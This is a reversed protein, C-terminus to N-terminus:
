PCAPAGDITPRKPDKKQEEIYDLVHAAAAEPTFGLEEAIVKYPASAGFPILGGSLALETCITGTGHERVGFHFNRGKFRNKEIDGYDKLYTKPQRRWTAQARASARFWGGIEQMVRGSSDRTAEDAATGLVVSLLRDTIDDPVKRAMMDDWLRAEEAYDRRYREFM